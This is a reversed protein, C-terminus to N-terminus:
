STLVALVLNLLVDIQVRHLHLKSVSMLAPSHEYWCKEVQLILLLEEVEPASLLLQRVTALFQLM